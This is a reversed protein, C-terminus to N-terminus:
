ALRCQGLQPPKFLPKTRVSNDALYAAVAEWYIGTAEMCAHLRHVGHTDLWATLAVFGSPSNQVVKSRLKGDPRRLAVALKAKSVDIGLVHTM